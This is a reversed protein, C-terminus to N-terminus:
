TNVVYWGARQLLNVFRRKALGELHLSMNEYISKMHLVHPVIDQAEGVMSNERDFQDIHTPWARELLAIAAGFSSVVERIQMRTRVEEQVLRHVCLHDSDIRILSCRVLGTRARHYASVSEFIHDVSLSENQSRILSQSISDPDWFAMVQLLKLSEPPLNILTAEFFSSIQTGPLKSSTGLADPRDSVENFLRAYESFTMSHRRMFAGAQSIALPIGGLCDMLNQCAQLEDDHPKLGVEKYFLTAADDPCFPQLDLKTSGFFLSPAQPDRSTVIVAGTSSIPWYEHLIEPDDADDFVLLWSASTSSLWELVLHKSIVVDQAELGSLLGCRTAIRGFDESLSQVTHARLWFIAQFHSRNTHVYQLALQTKGMGGMACITVCSPRPAEWGNESTNRPTLVVDMIKLAEEGGSFSPSAEPLVDFIPLTVSIPLSVYMADEVVPLVSLNPPLVDINSAGPLAIRSDPESGMVQQIDAGLHYLSANGIDNQISNKRSTKLHAHDMMAMIRLLLAGHREIKCLDAHDAPVPILTERRNSTQAFSLDM